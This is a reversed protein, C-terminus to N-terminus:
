PIYAGRGEPWAPCSGRFQCRQCHSGPRPDWLEATISHTIEEMLEYVEERSEMDLSRRTLKKTRARPYWMEAAIVPGYNEVATAYFALQISQKGEPVGIAQRSTKYDVVRLGQETRELRDVKGVWPTEAIEAVVKKELEIPEGDTHPWKEYLSAICEVAQDKWADNLADTGFDANEWM